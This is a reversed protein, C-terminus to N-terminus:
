PSSGVPAALVTRLRQFKLCRWGPPCRRGSKAAPVALELDPPWFLMVTVSSFAGLQGCSGRLVYIEDHRGVGM